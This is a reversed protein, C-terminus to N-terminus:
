CFGPVGVGEAAAWCLAFLLEADAAVDCGVSVDVEDVGVDDGM